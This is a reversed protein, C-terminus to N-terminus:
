RHATLYLSLLPMIRSLLEWLVQILLPRCSAIEGTCQDDGDAHPLAVGESEGYGLRFPSISEGIFLGSLTTFAVYTDGKGLSGRCM